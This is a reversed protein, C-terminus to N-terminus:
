GRLMNIIGSFDMDDASMDAFKEYLDRSMQGLPTTVGASQAAEQALRLDKLMMAAAFVRALAQKDSADITEDENKRLSSGKWSNFLAAYEVPVNKITVSQTKKEM